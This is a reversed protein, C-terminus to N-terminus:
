VLKLLLFIIATAAASYVAAAVACAVQVGVLEWSGGFFLGGHEEEAFFGVLIAGVFGGVGHLGFADLSDDLQKVKGLFTMAPYCALSGLAGIIMAMDPNVFGACPTIAVLGALIGVM